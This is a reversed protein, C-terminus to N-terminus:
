SETRIKSRLLMKSGFSKDVEMAQGGPASPPLMDAISSLAHVLRKREQDDAPAFMAALDTAPMEGHSLLVEQVAQSSIPLPALM